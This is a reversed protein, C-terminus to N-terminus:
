YATSVSASAAVTRAHDYGKKLILPRVWIWFSAVALATGGSIAAPPPSVSLYMAAVIFVWLGCTWASFLNSAWHKPDLMVAIHIQAAGSVLFLLAWLYKDGVLAMINYIPDAFLNGPWMLTIGWIIEALGLTIRTGLLDTDFLAISTRKYIDSNM